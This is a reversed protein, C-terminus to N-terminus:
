FEFDEPLSLEPGAALARDCWNRIKRFEERAPGKKGLRWMYSFVHAAVHREFNTLDRPQNAWAEAADWHELEGDTYHAPRETMDPGGGARHGRKKRRSMYEDQEVTYKGGTVPTEM